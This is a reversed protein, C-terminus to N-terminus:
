QHYYIEDMADEYADMLTQLSDHLRGPTRFMMNAKMGLQMEVDRALREVCKNRGGTAYLKDSESKMLLAIVANAAKSDHAEERFKEVATQFRHIIRESFLPVETAIQM